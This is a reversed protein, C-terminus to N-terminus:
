KPIRNLADIHREVVPRAEDAFAKLAPNDGSQAYNQLLLLANQHATRQQSLFKRDFDAGSLGKLADLMGQKDADLAPTVTVTGAAAAKLDATSKQHDRQLMQAVSKVDASPSNALALKASEIEFMDSSAVANAFGSADTPLAASAPKMAATDNTGLMANATADTALNADTSMDNTADSKNGGCAAMALALTFTITLAPIRMSRPERDFQPEGAARGCLGDPERLTGRKKRINRKPDFLQPRDRAM